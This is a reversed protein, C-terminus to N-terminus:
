KWACVNVNVKKLSGDPNVMITPVNYCGVSGAYSRETKTGGFWVKVKLTTSSTYTLGDDPNYISATINYDGVSNPATFVCSYGGNSDTANTKSCLLNDTTTNISVNVSANVIPSGAKTAQISINVPDNWWVETSNLSLVISPQVITYTDTITAWTDAADSAFWKYNYTDGDLNSKTTYYERATSNITRYSAITSNSGEWEFIVSSIDDTGDADNVTINFQYNQMAQYIAPDSPSEKLNELTPISNLMTFTMIDTANTNGYTDNYYIRWGIITGKSVSSNKWTFNSWTWTGAADGMDMPSSYDTKNEWTETENTSLISYDLKYNDKGQAYLLISQTRSIQSTNEGQDRWEPSTVDLVSIYFTAGTSNSSYNANGTVNGKYSHDGISLTTTRPNSVASSDEYLNVTGFNTYIETVNATTETGEIITINQNKYATGNDLYIDVPNTQNQNVILTYNTASARTWNTGGPTSYNYAYVGAGLLVTDNGTGSWSSNGRYLTCTVDTGYGSGFTCGTGNVDSPTPYTIPSTVNSNITLTQTGKNVTLTKEDQGANYNACGDTYYTYNYTGAGLITTDSVSSGTTIQNGNRKLAYTCDTDGSNSESGSYDSATRYNIPSTVSTTFSPNVKNITLTNTQQTCDSYNTGGTWQCVYNFTGANTQTDPTSVSSTNKTFTM